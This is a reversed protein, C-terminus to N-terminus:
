VLLEIAFDVVIIILLIGFIKRSNNKRIGDFGEVSSIWSEMGGKQFSEKQMSSKQFGEGLLKQKDM